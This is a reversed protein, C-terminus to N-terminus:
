VGEYEGGPIVGEGKVVCAGEAVGFSDMAASSTSSVVSLKSPVVFIPVLLSLLSIQFCKLFILALPSSM